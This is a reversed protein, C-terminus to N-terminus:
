LLEGFSKDSKLKNEIQKVSLIHANSSHYDDVPGNINLEPNGNIFFEDYNLSRNDPLIQYFQGLDISKAIEEKSMLVEFSKEGHRTGIIKTKHEPLSCLNKVAQSLDKITCSSSKQVFIEGPRGKLFALLVLDIAEDLSMIFRTMNPDTITLPVGSKIQNVFLPVVSGRSCLVNGYRTATVTTKSAISERATAIVIKEMMAKSMGMANIPYVAKDTSLCVVNSVNATVSELLVNETGVVNTKIAELPYFECSPVQKLAAAHFVFDVGRLAHRLSDRDKVDGLYFGFNKKYNQHRMQDQKAEDRSFIRVEVDMSEFFNAMKSGFSGTGGTILITKGSLKDKANEYQDM